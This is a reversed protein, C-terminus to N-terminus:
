SANTTAPIMETFSDCHLFTVDKLKGELESTPGSIQFTCYSVSWGYFLTSCWIHGFQSSSVVEGGKIPLYIANYEAHCRNNCAYICSYM